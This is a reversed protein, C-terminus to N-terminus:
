ADTTAPLPLPPAATQHGRWRDLLPANAPKKAPAAPQADDARRMTAPGNLGTKGERRHTGRHDLARHAVATATCPRCPRPMPLAKTHAARRKYKPAYRPAQSGLLRCGNVTATGEGGGRESGGTNTGRQSEVWGWGVNKEEGV